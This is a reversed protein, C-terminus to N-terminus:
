VVGEEEEEEELSALSHCLKLRAKLHINTLTIYNIVNSVLRYSPSGIGQWFITGM